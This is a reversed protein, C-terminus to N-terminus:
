DCLGTFCCYSCTNIGVALVQVQYIKEMTDNFGTNYVDACYNGSPDIHCAGEIVDLRAKDPQLDHCIAHLSGPDRNRKM